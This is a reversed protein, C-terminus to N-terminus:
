RASKMRIPINGMSTSISPDTEYQVIVQKNCSPTIHTIQPINTTLLDLDDLTLRLPVGAKDGGAQM